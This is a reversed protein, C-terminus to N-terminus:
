CFSVIDANNIAEETAEQKGSVPSIMHPEPYAISLGMLSLPIAGM